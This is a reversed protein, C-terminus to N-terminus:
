KNKSRFIFKLFNIYSTNKPKNGIPFPGLFPALFPFLFGGGGGGFSNTPSRGVQCLTECFPLTQTPVLEAATGHL